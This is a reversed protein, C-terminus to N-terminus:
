FERRNGGDLEEKASIRIDYAFNFQKEEAAALTAPWYFRGRHKGAEEDDDLPLWDPPTM